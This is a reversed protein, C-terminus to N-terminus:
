ANVSQNACWQMVVSAFTPFMGVDPAIVDNLIADVKSDMSAALRKRMDEPTESEVIKGMDTYIDTGEGTVKVFRM